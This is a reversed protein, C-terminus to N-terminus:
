SNGKSSEDNFLFLDISLSFISFSSNDEVSTVLLRQLGNILLGFLLDRSSNSSNSSSNSSVKIDSSTVVFVGSLLRKFNFELLSCADVSLIESSLSMSFALIKVVVVDEM